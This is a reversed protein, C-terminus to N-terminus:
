LIYSNYLKEVRPDYFTARNGKRANCIKCLPQVNANDHKGGKTIPIAHDITLTSLLFKKNCMVCVGDLQRILWKFYELSFDGSANHIRAIRNRQKLRTRELYHKKTVRKDQYYCKRSCYKIRTESFRVEFLSLCYICKKIMRKRRCQNSCHTGSNLTKRIHSRPVSFLKDCTVCKKIM